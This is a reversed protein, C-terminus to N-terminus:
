GNIDTLIEEFANLLGGREHSKDFERLWKRVYHRDVDPNKLILTRVDELDRPRGAFVKHIIVDEVSAFMIKTKGLFAPTAKAIAQREYPTFSFIFDIRLGTEKELTPLVYTQKVFTRFDEPIIEIGISKVTEVVVGLSETDVGLTIDIDKTMRPSGYFLVAQGGIIMYPLGARELEKAIKSILAEFM